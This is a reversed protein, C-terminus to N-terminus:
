SEHSTDEMVCFLLRTKRRKFQLNKPKIFKSSQFDAILQPETAPSMGAM